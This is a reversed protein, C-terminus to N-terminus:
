GRAHRWDWPAIPNPQSWVGIKAARAYAEDDLLSTDRLYVKYVWAYGERVLERNIDRHGCWLTGVLRGYRDTDTIDVTVSRLYVKEALAVTARSGWDQDHEPTDIDALRIRYRNHNVFVTLTDGDTVGVVRGTLKTRGLSGSSGHQIDLGAFPKIWPALVGAAQARLDWRMQMEVGGLVGVTLALAAIFGVFKRRSPSRPLRSSWAM